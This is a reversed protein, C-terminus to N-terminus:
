HVRTFSNYHDGTFYVEGGKGIIVRLPGPFTVKDDFQGNLKTDWLVFERYYEKDANKPLLGEKNLFIAGDNKHNLGKGARIRNLTPNVDITGQYIVKGFNVVKASSLVKASGKVADIHPRGFTTDPQAQACAGALVVAAALTLVLRRGYAFRPM